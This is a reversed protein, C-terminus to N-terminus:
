HIGLSKLYDRLLTRLLAATHKKDQVSHGSCVVFEEGKPLHSSWYPVVGDSSRALERGRCWGIVSYTRSPRMKMGSLAHISWSDPSLQGVSTFWTKIKEPNTLLSDQQLTAIALLETVMNEPLQVLKRFFTVVGYDAMPAGRHPTAMYIVLGAKIPEFYFLSRLKEYEANEFPQHVYRRDLFPRIDTKLVDVNRLLMWPEECQNYHTILGGMSHGVLVLRDWNRNRHHPDLEKRTRKLDARLQAATVTWAVGTPYNYYWFQYHRYIDPDAVLRNVLQSFTEASSMLGHTLIVPIKEPDYSEICSLGTVDRLEQPRLLGLLRGEKLNTLNWYLELAASFDHALSYRVRGVEIVDSRSPACLRMVPKGKGQPFELVATLANVTGKSRVPRRGQLSRLKEAPIIGVVPVGLGGGVYREELESIPIDVAPVLDDYVEILKLSVTEDRFDILQLFPTEYRGDDIVDHRLRRLLLLLDANYADVLARREQESLRRNGLRRWRDHLRDLLQTDSLESREVAPERAAPVLPASCGAAILLAFLLCFLTSAASRTRPCTRM